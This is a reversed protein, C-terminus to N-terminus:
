GAQSPSKKAIKLGLGLKQNFLSVLTDLAANAAERNERLHARISDLLSDIEHFRPALAAMQEGTLVTSVIGGEQLEGPLLKENLATKLGNFTTIAGLLSRYSVDVLLTSNFVALDDLSMFLAMEEPSFSIEDPMNALPKIIQSPAGKFGDRAAEELSGEFHNHLSNLHAHILLAKTVIAHATALQGEKRDIDREAKAAKTASRQLFYSIVGGTVSGIIAGVIAAIFETSGVVESVAM